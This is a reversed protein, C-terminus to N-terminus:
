TEQLVFRNIRIKRQLSSRCLVSVLNDRYHLVLNVAQFILIKGLIQM